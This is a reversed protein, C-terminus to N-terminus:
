NRARRLGWPQPGPASGAVPSSAFDSFGAGGALVSPWMAPEPTWFDLEQCSNGALGCSNGNKFWSNHGIQFGLFPVSSTGLHTMADICLLFVATGVQLVGLYLVGEEEDM